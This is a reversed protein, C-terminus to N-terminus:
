IPFAQLHERQISLFTFSKLSLTRIRKLGSNREPSPNEESCHAGIKDLRINTFSSNFHEHPFHEECFGGGSLFGYNFRV